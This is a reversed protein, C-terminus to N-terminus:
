KQVNAALAERAKEAALTDPWLRVVEGFYLRAGEDCGTRDYYLGVTLDKEAMQEDIRGLTQDVNISAAFEPYRNKLETYYGRASILSGAEYKPGNYAAYINSAMGYLAERGIDGSPWRSSVDSWAHYADRYLHRKEYSRAISILGRKAIPADGARDAIANMIKEGDEYARVRFIGLLPKKQGNLFATGIQFLRDMAADYLDSGPHEDLFTTYKKAAKVFDRKAYLVEADIFLDIGQEKLEPFEDRLERLATSAEKPRGENVLQKVRATKELYVSQRGSTASKWTGDKDLYMTEACACGSFVAITLAVVSIRM